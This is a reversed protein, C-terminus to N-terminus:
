IYIDKDVHNTLMSSEGTDENISQIYEKIKPHKWCNSAKNKWIDLFSNSLVNGIVFPASCDLRVNGNPRVIVTDTPTSQSKKLQYIETTSHEISMRNNYKKRLEIINKDMEEVQEKNLIFEKNEAARGSLMIKGFILSSAGIQYALEAMEEMNNLNQPTVSSAIALPLGAKSAFYAGRVARKWSGKKQRFEDHENQNSSDISVQFRYYRYKKLQNVLEETLLYGNTIFVFSVDDKHLIDMIRFLDKGLLLPEGGSIICQFIGGNNTLQKSLNVWDDVKMRTNQGKEGSANYCHKCKLNCDYTLEYQVGLPMSFQKPYNGKRQANNIVKTTTKLMNEEAKRLNEEM